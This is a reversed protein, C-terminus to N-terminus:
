LKRGDIVLIYSKYIAFGIYALLINIDNYEKWDIKYGIVVYQLAKMSHDINCNQFISRIVNWFYEVYKCHIFFHDFDEIENCVLCM